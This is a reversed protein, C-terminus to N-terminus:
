FHVLRFMFIKKIQFLGRFERAKEFIKGFISLNIITDNNIFDSISQQAGNWTFTKSDTYTDYNIAGTAEVAYAVSPTAYLIVNCLLAIMIIILIIFFM